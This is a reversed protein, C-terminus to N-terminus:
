PGAARACAPDATGPGGFYFHAHGPPGPPPSPRTDLTYCQPTTVYVQQLSAPISAGNADLVTLESQFASHGYGQGAFAGSGMELHPTQGTNEGGFNVTLVAGETALGGRFKSRPYYGVWVGNFQLWWNGNASNRIWKLDLTPQLGGPVSYRDDAFTAFVVQNTVQVFGACELNYCGDGNRRYNDRTSYIFPVAKQPDLGLRVQWGSEITQTASGAEAVIWTQSLSMDYGSVRPSWVNLKASVGTAEGRQMVVAYRHVYGDSSSTTGARPAPIAGDLDAPPLELRYARDITRRSLGRDKAFFDGLNQYTALDRVTTAKFPIEGIPCVAEPRGLILSGPSAPQASPPEDIEGAVGRLSPQERIPICMFTQPGITILRSPQLGEYANLFYSKMQQFAPAGSVAKDALESFQISRNIDLFDAFLSGDLHDVDQFRPAQPVPAHSLELSPMVESLVIPADSDAQQAAGSDNSSSSCGAGAALLAALTTAACLSALSGM